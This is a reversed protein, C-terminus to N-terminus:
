RCARRRPAVLRRRSEPVVFVPVGASQLYDLKRAAAGSYSPIAARSGSSRDDRLRQEKLRRNIEDQGM